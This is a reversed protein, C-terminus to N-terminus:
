VEREEPEVEKEKVAHGGFENRLAASLKAAFSEEQRSAFRAYLAATIAPMPVANDVGFEVSWRGMGSDDVHAAIARVSFHQAGLGM